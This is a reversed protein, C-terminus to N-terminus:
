VLAHLSPVVLDALARWRGHGSPDVLVTAVGAARGARLDFGYDGVMVADEPPAGWLRLIREIGEPSPKAAADGRGFVPDFRGGLGVATLTAHAVASTNRTLVARRHHTLVELLARAGAAPRALAVMEVEWAVVAAHLAAHERAPRAAIAELIPQGSPLRLRARLGDFDHIAVTLTGDLDFIWHRRARLGAATLADTAM